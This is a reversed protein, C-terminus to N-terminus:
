QQQKRPPPEGSHGDDDIWIGLSANISIIELPPPELGIWFNQTMKKQGSAILGFGICRFDLFFLCNFHSKLKKLVKSFTIM